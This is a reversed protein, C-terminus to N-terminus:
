APKTKVAERCSLFYLSSVLLVAGCLIWSTSISYHESIVGFALSALVGGATVAFSSISLITSRMENPTSNNLLVQESNNGM